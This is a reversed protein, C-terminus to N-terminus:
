AKLFICELVSVTSGGVLFGTTVNSVTFKTACLGSGFMLVERMRGVFISNANEIYIPLRVFESATNKLTSAAVPVNYLVNMRSITTTTNTGFNMIYGHANGASAINRFLSNSGFNGNYHPTGGVGGYNSTIIGYVKGDSESTSANSSEPDIIAGATSIYVTGTSTEGVIMITDQSEYAHIASVALSFGTYGSFQGTGFPNADTWNTFNGANKCIGLITRATTYADPSLMTPTGAAGGAYVIKQGLTSTAPTLSVAITTGSSVQSFPTWAIGSGAVRSSGDSYTTSAFANALAAMTGSVTVAPANFKGIYKFTLASLSM